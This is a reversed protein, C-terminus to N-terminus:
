SSKRKVSADATHEAGEFHAIPYCADKSCFQTAPM